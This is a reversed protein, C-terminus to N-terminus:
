RVRSEGSRRAGLRVDVGDSYLARPAGVAAPLGAARLLGDDAELVTAHRLPWAEHRARTRAWSGRWRSFLVWRATLFHDLDELEGARYPDGVDVVVRSTPHDAGPWRRRSEYTVVSGTRTLRMHSWQYPLSWATRAAVVAGLREADLSLFWIGRTGDDARVYTRVNTEVFRGAWPVYPVGRVRVDLRFPILGVWAAGAFPDVHLREPLLAQVIDPPYPWHLFSLETWRHHQWARGDAQPPEPGVAEPAEPGHGFAQLTTARPVM